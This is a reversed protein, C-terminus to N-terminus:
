AAYRYLLAGLAQCVLAPSRKIVHGLAAELAQHGGLDPSREGTLAYTLPVAEGGWGAKWQQLGAHRTETRGFELRRHGTDSAWRIAAWYCLHNPRLEWSTSDSAQFKVMATGNSALVVVGAVAHGAPTEALLVVGHGRAVLRRWIADFFRRPQVPVGQRRRTLVHLGYYAEMEQASRGFRVRLGSREAQRLWRRHTASFRERLSEAGGRLDLLHEVGVIAQTWGAAPPVASRVDVPIGQRRSWDALGGTLSALSEADRALPACRDTFPLSVLARGAFRRVRAVPIGAAVRGSRDLHAMVASPYGYTSAVARSWAPLHFVTADAAEAVLDLWAPDDESLEALECHTSRAGDGPAFVSM